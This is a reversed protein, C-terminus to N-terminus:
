WLGIMKWYPLGLLLYIALSVFTVAHGVKWWTGQDVYGLGFIIPGVGNGYHTTLSGLLASAGLMLTLVVPPVGAALGFTMFVPVMSSVFAAVSAFFYRILVSIILICVLVVIPDIGDFSISKSIIDGLWDFFKARSLGTAFSIIGAYWIFTSWATKTSLVSDWSIIGFIMCGVLFGLAVATTDIKTISGTAWGIVALFFLGCLKKENNSMPGLEKLGNDAIETNDIVSLTAPCLKFVLWPIVLMVVIGPPLMAISWDAWTLEVGMINHAFSVILPNNANATMFLCSSALSVQYLMIMLYAGIKRASEGPNSGLTKAVNHFIPFSLGGTRATNSPVALALIGDTASIVYGLRLATQGMFRVLLYAIRKGLGTEVFCQGVLFAVFVLWAISSSYGSLAIGTQRYMISIGAMTALLVIPEPFPRLILGVISALYFAFIQWAEPTLGEPVPTMLIGAPVALCVLSRWLRENM